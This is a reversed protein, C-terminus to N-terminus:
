DMYDIPNMSPNRLFIIVRSTKYFLVVSNIDVKVNMSDINEKELGILFNKFNLLSSENNKFFPEIYHVTEASDVRDKGDYLHIKINASNKFNEPNLGANRIIEAFKMFNAGGM